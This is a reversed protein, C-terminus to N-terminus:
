EYIIAVGFTDAFLTDEPEFLLRYYPAFLTDPTFAKVVTVSDIAYIFDAIGTQWTRGDHSIQLDVAVAADLDIADTNAIVLFGGKGARDILGTAQTTALTDPTIVVETATLYGNVSKRTWGALLVMCAILTLLIYKRM